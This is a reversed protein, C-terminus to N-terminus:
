GADGRRPAPRARKAAREAIALRAAHETRREFTDFCAKGSPSNCEPCWPARRQQVTLATPANPKRSALRESTNVERGRETPKASFTVYTVREAGGIWRGYSGRCLKDAVETRPVLDILGAEHLAHLTRVDRAVSGTDTGTTVGIGHKLPVGWREVNQSSARDWADVIRALAALRAPTLAM